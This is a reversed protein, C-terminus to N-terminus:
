HASAPDLVETIVEGMCGSPMQIQLLAALTPAIDQMRVDRYHKGPRIGHGFWVLPIHADYPNWVGHGTGTKGADQFGPLPIIQVQGSRKPHYAVEVSERIRPPIAATGIDQIFFAHQIATFSLIWRIIDQKMAPNWSRAEKQYRPHIYLQYNDYRVFFDAVQYNRKISDNLTALLTKGPTAGGPLGHEQLYGPTNAVGHDASLFLLYNGKGVQDDLFRLFSALERDLRLYTDQIEIANPGFVHGIMDPSSISVALFDTHPGKGMKEELITQKSFNLTYANAYPTYRFADWKRSSSKWAHPFTRGTLGPLSGEYPKDDATSLTYASLPLLTNWVSDKWSAPGAQENFRNVWDPLTKMYYSSSIWRGINEDYWYAANASHGAPLIAGRDKISIGIVKSQFQNSLRLEDGITTAQMNRPSMKGDPNTSGAGVVTSDDTCYVTTGRQNDYWGNGVIGHIAPYAGTYISAHGAATTTPLHRIHTNECSYGESLLRNFGDPGYLHSFRYLYDWRMQDVVIGVVLSPKSATVPTQSSASQSVILFLWISLFSRQM